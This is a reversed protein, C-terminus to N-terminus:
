KRMANMHMYILNIKNKKIKKYKKELKFSQTNENVFKFCKKHSFPQTYEPFLNKNNKNGNIQWLFCNRMCLQVHM